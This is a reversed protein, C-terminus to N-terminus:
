TTLRRKRRRQAEARIENVEDAHKGAMHKVLELEEPRLWVRPVPVFGAARLAEASQNHEPTGPRRALSRPPRREAPTM